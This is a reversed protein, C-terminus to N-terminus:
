LARRRRHTRRTASERFDLAAAVRFVRPAEGRTARLRRLIVRTRDEMQPRNRNPWPMLDALELGGADIRWRTLLCVSAEEYCQEGLIPDAPGFRCFGGRAPDLLAGLVVHDDFDPVCFWDITGDAAVLAATRRDGIVGHKAIPPYNLFPPQM